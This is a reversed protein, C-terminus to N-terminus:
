QIATELELSQLAMVRTDNNRMQDFTAKIIPYADVQFRLLQDSGFSFERQFTLTNTTHNVYARTAFSGLPQFSFPAPMEAHDLEYGAPLSFVVNDIESWPYKFYISNNRNESTFYPEANAAFFSPRILLRKGTRQAYVKMRLHANFGVPLTVDPSITVVIQSVEADPYLKHIQAAVCEQREAATQHTHAVRFSNAENGWFLERVTGEIDGDPSLALEAMREVRTEKPSLLPTNIWQSSEADLVLAYSGQEEWSLTGLPTFENSVDYLKWKGNLLVATDFNHLFSGAHIDPNFLFRRRGAVVALRADFGAAQALAIFALHIDMPTGTQRNLTNATTKNIRAQERQETTLEENGLNTINKRCYEAMQAIKEEETKGTAIEAALRKIEGTVKLREKVEKFEEKGYWDWYGSNDPPGYILLIWQKSSLEPPSFPEKVYAPVGRVTLRSFGYKESVKEPKCHFALFNLSGQPGSSFAPNFHYNVEAVPIEMQVPLLAGFGVADEKWTYEVISGPEVAPMAFSLVKVKVNGAKAELKDFIADKELEFIAGDSHITRGAVGTVHKDGSYEIRVNSYKERGRENFIKYRVYTTVTTDISVDRLLMEADANPDIKSQKLALEEPTATRWEVAPLAPLTLSLIAFPLLGTKPPVDSLALDAHETEGAVISKARCFDWKPRVPAKVERERARCKQSRSGRM